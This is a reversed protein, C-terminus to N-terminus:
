TRLHEWAKLLIFKCHTRTRWHQVGLVQVYGYVELPLCGWRDGLGGWGVGKIHLLLLEDTEWATCVEYHKVM